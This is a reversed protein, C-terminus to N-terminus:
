LNGEQIRLADARAMSVERGVSKVRLGMCSMCQSGNEDLCIKGPYLLYDKKVSVPTLNPMLVNAGAKIMDERGTPKLSGAATTAPIHAKPLLLRLLATGKIALEIDEQRAGSLPTAEHPIFPGIGVMDLELEQCLLANDIRTQENEGPLGTMYGSGLQLGATRINELAKLRKSLPIGNRIRKHLEPDSTEFRLLYRDAGASKLAKYEDLSKIGCSLTIAAENNTANKIGELTRCLLETDYSLEEGGQLVFTRLGDEYGKKCISIIDDKLLSYRNVDNNSRRIGCYHCDLNCKNNFEILGRLYVNDGHNNTTVDWAKRYLEEKNGSLYLEIIENNTM